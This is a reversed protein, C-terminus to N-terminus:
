MTSTQRSLNSWGPHSTYHTNALKHLLGAHLSSDQEAHCHHTCHTSDIDEIFFTLNGYHCMNLQQFHISKMNSPPMLKYWRRKSLTSNAGDGGQTSLSWVVSRNVYWQPENKLHLCWEVRSYPPTLWTPEVSFGHQWSIIDCNGPLTVM